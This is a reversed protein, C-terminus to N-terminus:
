FMQFQIWAVLGLSTRELKMLTGLLTGNSDLKEVYSSFKLSTSFAISFLV